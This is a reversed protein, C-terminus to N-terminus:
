LSLFLDAEKLFDPQPLLDERPFRVLAGVRPRHSAIRIESLDLEYGPETSGKELKIAMRSLRLSFPETSLYQAPNSLAEAVLDLQENVTMPRADEAALQRELEHIEASLRERAQEADPGQGQSRLRGRLGRLRSELDEVRRASDVAHRKIHALLGDFMCCKLACRAATEDNGPSFVHHDTFSVSTQLVDNRVEDGVLAMGLQSREERRVCMLAFCEAALPNADFLRRVESSQSFVEQIHKPSVFFANIRPDESFTSRCCLLPGPVSEGLEDIHRFTAVVPGRLIREYGPVVRLRPSIADVVREVARALDVPCAGGAPVQEQLAATSGGFRLFLDQLLSTIM